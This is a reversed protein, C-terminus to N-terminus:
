PAFPNALCAIYSPFGDIEWYSICYYELCAAVDDHGICDEPWYVDDYQSLRESGTNIGNTGDASPVTISGDTAFKTDFIIHNNPNQFGDTGYISALARLNLESFVTSKSSSGPCTPRDDEVSCMLDGPINFTHGLGIAHVFEHVATAGIEENTRSDLSCVVTPVPKPALVDYAWGLTGGGYRDWDCDSDDDRTVLNVIVDPREGFMGGRQVVEFDVNWDGNPYRQELMATLGLIGEQVPVIHRRVQEYSDPSPVIAIRPPQEFDLSRYLEMYGGDVPVPEPVPEQTDYYATLKQIPTAQRYYLPGGEYVAQIDITYDPDVDEVVWFTAFRGSADVYASVLLDDPNLLDEDKIYVISGEPNHADLHLTGTLTIIEGFAAREPIPDLTISSGYKYVSMTHRPTQANGYSGDWDFKAYIDLDIEIAQAQAPWETRFRGTNDTMTRALCEDPIFPDDECILVTRGSLPVGNSTLTGSFVVLNGAYVAPPLPDLTVVSPTAYPSGPYTGVVADNEPLPPEEVLIYAFPDALCGYYSSFGDVDWYSACYYNLCADQNAYLTCDEPWFVDEYPNVYASPDALGYYERIVDTNTAIIHLIESNSGGVVSMGLNLHQRIVNTDLAIGHLRETNTGSMVGEGMGLNLHQRIVNTDLAIGHLRESNIDSMVGEGMGLNLHQRIVDTDAAVNQLKESNSQAYANWVTYDGGMIGALAMCSIIVVSIWSFHIMIM